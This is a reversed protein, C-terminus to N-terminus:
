TAGVPRDTTGVTKKSVVLEESLEAIVSDKKALRAELKAIKELLEAERNDDVKFRIGTAQIRTAHDFIATGWGSERSRRSRM